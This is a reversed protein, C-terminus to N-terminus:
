DVEWSNISIESIAIFLICQPSLILKGKGEVRYVRPTYGHAYLHHRTISNIGRHITDVNLCNAM